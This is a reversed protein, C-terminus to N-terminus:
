PRFPYEGNTAIIYNVALVPQINSHAQGDGSSALTTGPLIATPSALYQAGGAGNDAPVANQPSATTGPASSAPLTHTHAPLQATTLAVGEVGGQQGLVVNSLGAGMGNSGVPLRGRLDPVAFFNQGDGGFRTGLLTFLSENESIPLLQGNCFEFGIPAFNGWFINIEGVYPNSGLPRRAVNQPRQAVASAPRLWSHVRRLWSRRAAGDSNQNAM